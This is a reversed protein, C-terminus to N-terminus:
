YVPTWENVARDARARSTILLFAAVIVLEGSGVDQSPRM